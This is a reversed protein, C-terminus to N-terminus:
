LAPRTEGMAGPVEFPNVILSMMAVYGVATSIQVAKKVGFRSVVVDYSSDSVHHNGRLLQHCFDSVAKEEDTARVLPKGHEITEVLQADLGAARAAAAGAAWNYNCDLERATIQWTLAKPGPPLIMQY